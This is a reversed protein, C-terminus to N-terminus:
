WEERITPTQLDVFYGLQSTAGTLTSNAVSRPRSFSDLYRLLM